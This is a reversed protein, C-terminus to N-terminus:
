KIMDQQVDETRNMPWLLYTGFVAIDGLLMQIDHETEPAVTDFSVFSNSM